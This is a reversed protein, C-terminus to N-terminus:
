MKDNLGKWIKFVFPLTEFPYMCCITIAYLLLVGQILRVGLGKKAFHYAAM